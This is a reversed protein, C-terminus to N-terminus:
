IAAQGGGVVYAAFRPAADFARESAPTESEPARIEREFPLGHRRPVIIGHHEGVVRALEGKEPQILPQPGAGAGRDIGQPPM